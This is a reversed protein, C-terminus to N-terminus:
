GTRAPAALGDKRDSNSDQDSRGASTQHPMALVRAASISSMRRSTGNTRSNAAIHATKRSRDPLSISSSTRSGSPSSSSDKCLAALIEAGPDLAGDREAPQPPM